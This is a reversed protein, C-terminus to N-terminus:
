QNTQKKQKNLNLDINQIMGHGDCVYMTTM